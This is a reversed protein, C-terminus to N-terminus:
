GGINLDFLYDFRVMVNRLYIGSSAVGTDNMQQSMEVTVNVLWEASLRQTYDADLILEENGEQDNGRAAWNVFKRYATSFTLEKDTDIYLQADAKVGYVYYNM